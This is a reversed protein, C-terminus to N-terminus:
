YFSNGCLKCYWIKSWKINTHTQSPFSSSAICVIDITKVTENKHKELGKTVSAM